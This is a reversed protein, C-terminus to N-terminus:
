LLGNVDDELGNVTHLIFMIVSAALQIGFGKYLGRVGWASTAKRRKPINIHRREYSDEEETEDSSDSPISSKRIVTSSNPGRAGEEKMIKYLADLIGYYYIPRLPVTTQFTSSQIDSTISSKSRKQHRFSGIQCQLRKRITELPMTILLTTISLGFTAASYLIPHDNASIHCSRDILIPASYHFLPTLSHYLITPWYNKESFYISWLGDEDQLLSRWARYVNQYPGDVSGASQVIMRTRMIELPSLLVGVVVHSTLMTILNGTVSDLHMLPITDDYLGFLDNLQHEIMSQLAKFLSQWGESPHKIIQNMIDLLGGHMPAMQYHPRSDEDYVSRSKSKIDTNYPVKPSVSSSLYSINTSKPKMGYFGDEEEEDDSSLYQLSSNLVPEKNHTQEAFVEVDQHPTYQVQLLTTGVEFPSSMMTFVYRMLAYSITNSADHRFPTQTDLNDFIDPTLDLTTDNSPLSTYNHQRHLGPTYYPRLPNVKQDVNNIINDNFTMLHYQITLISFNQLFFFFSLFFFFFFFPIYKKMGM